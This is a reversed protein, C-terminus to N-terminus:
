EDELESIAKNFEDDTRMELLKDTAKKNIALELKDLAEKGRSQEIYAKYCSLRMQNLEKRTMKRIKGIYKMECPEIFRTIITHYIM